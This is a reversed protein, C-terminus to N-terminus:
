RHLIFHVGDAVGGDGGGPEGGGRRMEDRATGLKGGFLSLLAIVAVAVAALILGYEVAAAGARDRLLRRARLLGLVHKIRRMPGLEEIAL